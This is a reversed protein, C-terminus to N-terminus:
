SQSQAADLLAQEWDPIVRSWAFRSAAYDRCRRRLEPGTFELVTGITAALENPEDSRALLRPELPELIEPSAGEKTAVAPTGSALAELTAMGFGELPNPPLVFVDAARYWSRLADDSQAGTLKLRQGLGLENGLTRLRPALSGTGVLALTAERNRVVIRFARLLNELGPRTFFELRRVALLLIEDASVGIAERAKYYDSDDALWTADVGGRALRVRDAAEPFDGALLSGM